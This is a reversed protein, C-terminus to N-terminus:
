LNYWSIVLYPLNSRDTLKKQSPVLLRFIDTNISIKATRTHAPTSHAAIDIASILCLSSAMATTDVTCRPEHQLSHTHKSKADCKDSLISVNHRYLTICITYKTTIRYRRTSNLSHVLTNVAPSSLLPVWRAVRRSSYHYEHHM